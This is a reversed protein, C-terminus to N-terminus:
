AGGASAFVAAVAIAATEVRLVHRGLSVLRGGRARLREIEAPSLGGEPGIVVSVAADDGLDRLAGPLSRAEPDLHAALLLGRVQGCAVDLLMGTEIQPLAARQCQKCAAIATPRLKDAQGASLHVVSREFEAFILRAVGLETCKEVLVDLRPGKCPAVILTLRSAPTAQAQIGGVRALLRPPRKGSRRADADSAAASPAVLTASAYRGAGDFLVVGDGATLRLVQAAHRLEAEPLEVDGAQLNQCLLWPEAMGADYPVAPRSRFPRAAARACLPM